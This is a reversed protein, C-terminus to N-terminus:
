PQTSARHRSTKVAAFMTKFPHNAKITNISFKVDESTIPEGDHFTAGKVLNLTVSLGNTSIEWSKALYPQPNWNEDFRLPTAFLQAGPEGTAIGSQVAPNLHQTHDLVGYLPAVRKPTGAM